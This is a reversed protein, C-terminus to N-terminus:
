RHHKIRNNHLFTRMSHKLDSGGFIILALIVIGTLIIRAIEYTVLLELLFGTFNILVVGIFVTLISQIAKRM